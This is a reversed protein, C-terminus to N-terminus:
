WTSSPFVSAATHTPLMVEHSSAAMKFRLGPRTPFNGVAWIAREKEEPSTRGDIAPNV